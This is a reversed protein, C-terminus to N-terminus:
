RISVLSICQQYNSVVDIDGHDDKKKKREPVSSSSSTFSQVASFKLIFSAAYQQGSQLKM